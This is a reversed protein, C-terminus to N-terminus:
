PTASEASVGADPAASVPQGRADVEVVPVGEPPSLDYLTLDASDNLALEKWALEVTTSAQPVSLVLRRPFTVPGLASLDGYEVGYASVGEVTSRVVRASRPDVELRQTASGRSLTLRYVQKQDDFGLTATAGPLRPVRGMLLGALEAPPLVVPLFRGLNPPTAPGRFFQGAQADFLGFREGDTTLVGQPRGFFDLQEFHLSAPHLAAIFAAASGKGQPADVTLKAEGKVGVVQLEAVAVRRLLDEPSKAEGDPGFDVRPPPCAACAVAVVLLSWRRVPM